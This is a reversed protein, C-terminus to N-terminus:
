KRQINDLAEKAAKRLSINEDGLANTLPEVARPDGIKGLAEAVDSAVYPDEDRLAQILPEVAREDRIEGLAWAASSRARRDENKLAQILPEVAREDGIKGLASAAKSRAEGNEDKLAQIFAESVRVDRVEELAGAANKQVISELAHGASRALDTDPDGLVKILPEIARPGGIQGLAEAAGERSGRWNISRDNLVTILPEVAAEGLKGLALVAARRTEDSMFRYGRFGYKSALDRYENYFSIEPNRLSRVLPEVARPDGMEGLAGAAAHQTDSTVGGLFTAIVPEVAPEGIKKLARGVKSGIDGYFDDHLVEILPEMARPDGIEGLAEIADRRVFVFGNGKYKLAKIIGKVDRKAKLKEINPKGFIGM